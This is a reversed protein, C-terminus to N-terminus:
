SSKEDNTKGKPLRFRNKKSYLLNKSFLLPINGLYLFVALFVGILPGLWYVLSYVLFSHGPCTFTVAYALAPNVYGSTYNNATYAILTLAVSLAPVKLMQSRNKLVLHLLLLLLAALAETSVGLATSVRLSTSCESMMLNKIMHMDSLEMAWFRGAVELALFAGILQAAISLVAVVVSVDRQLLRLLTVAPNGSVDQMVATHVAISLFLMTVAVDPGLAGAWQGVEAITDVELRCACLAFASVLELLVTWRRLLLRGSVSLGVVALFFGLSSNLGSM